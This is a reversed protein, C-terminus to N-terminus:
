CSEQLVDKAMEGGREVAEAVACVRVSACECVTHARRSTSAPTPFLFFDTACGLGYGQPCVAGFGLAVLAPSNVNSTSLISTNLKTWAADSFLPSDAGFGM